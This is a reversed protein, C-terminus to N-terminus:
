ETRLHFLRTRRGIAQITRRPSFPNSMRISSFRDIAWYTYKADLCAIAADCLTVFPPVFPHAARSPASNKLEALEAAKDPSADPIPPRSRFASQSSLIWPKWTGAMPLIPNSGTWKGSGSPVDDEGTL